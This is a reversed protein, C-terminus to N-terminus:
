GPRKDHLPFPEGSNRTQNRKITFPFMIGAFSGLSFNFITASLFIRWSLGNTKDKITNTPADPAAVGAQGSELYGPVMLSLLIFSLIVAVLVGIITTVHSSFLMTVTNANKGRRKNFRLVDIVIVVFFLFSGVYVIWSDVYDTERIYLFVCISFLIGAIIGNIVNSKIDIKKFM